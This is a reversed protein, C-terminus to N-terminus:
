QIEITWTNEYTKGADLGILDSQQALNEVVGDRSPLSSWPEICVYPAEMRPMHWFGIYGHEPWSVTVSHRGGDCVLRVSRATNKLVIADEDFLDHRLPIRRNNELAYPEDRGNLFCAETFGVRTPKSPQDFELYYDSFAFGDELPVNFGPHGGTGFYMRRDSRNEVGTVIKLTHEKLIYTIRYTFDFPYQERTAENSELCFTLSDESQREMQLTAYMVFGHIKMRYENGYVTYKGDTMRAVYPFINPARDGWIEQNGQWLYETGDSGKVSQLEAGRDSVIVTLFENKIKYEM